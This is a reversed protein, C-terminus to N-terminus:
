EEEETDTKNSNESSGEVGIDMMGYQLIRAISESARELEPLNLLYYKRGEIRAIWSKENWILYFFQGNKLNVRFTSPKPAVYDISDIFLNYENSMLDIIAVEMEPFSVFIPFTSSTPVETTVKKYLNPVLGKIRNRLEIPSM